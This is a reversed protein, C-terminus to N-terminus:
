GPMAVAESTVTAARATIRALGSDEPVHALRSGLRIAGDAQAHVSARPEPSSAGLARETPGMAPVSREM